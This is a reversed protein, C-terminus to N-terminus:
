LSRSDPLPRGEDADIYEFMTRVESRGAMGSEKKRRTLTESLEDNWGRKRMFENWIHVEEDSPKRGNEFCWGLIEEDTAGQKALEVIASYQVGLFSCCSEDFGRGLNPQYEPPLKGCIHARAKDLMRGLYVIGGLKAAPSRAPFDSM